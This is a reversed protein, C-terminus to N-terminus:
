DPTQGTAELAREVQEGSFGRRALFGGQRQREPWDESLDSLGFRRERLRTAMESWRADPVASLEQPTTMVGRQQLDALIKLPGYGADMRQRVFVEAFREDDLWGKEEFDDLVEEIVGADVRRQRLKMSLELRSHERRALLRLATEPAQENPDKKKDSKAM